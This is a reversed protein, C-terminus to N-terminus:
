TCQEKGSRHMVWAKLPRFRLYDLVSLQIRETQVTRQSYLNAQSQIDKTPHERKPQHYVLPYNDLVM